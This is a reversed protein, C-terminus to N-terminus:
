NKNKEFSSLVKEFVSNSEEYIEADSVLILSYAVNEGRWNEHLFVQKGRQDEYSFEFAYGRKGSVNIPYHTTVNFDSYSLYTKIQERMARSNRIELVDYYDVGIGIKANRDGISTNFKVLKSSGPPNHENWRQPKLVSFNYKNNVYYDKTREPGKELEGYSTINPVGDMILCDTTRNDVDFWATINSKNAAVQIKYYKDAEFAPGCESRIESLSEEITGDDWLAAKVEASPNDEMFQQVEPVSKYTSEVNNSSSVCGSSVVVIALLMLLTRRRCLNM